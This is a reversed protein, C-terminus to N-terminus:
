QSVEKAWSVARRRPKGAAPGPARTLLALSGKLISSGSTQTKMFASKTKRLLQKLPLCSHDKDDAKTRMFASKAKKSLQKLPLCCNSGIEMEDTVMAKDGDPMRFKFDDILFRRNRLLTEVKGGETRERPM